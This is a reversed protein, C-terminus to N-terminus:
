KEKPVTSKLHTREFYIAIPFGFFWTVMSVLPNFFSIPISILFIVPSILLRLTLSRIFKPHLTQDVLRYGKSAHIWLLCMSIGTAALLVAYVIVASQNAPYKGILDNPFPVLVIFMLFLLNLSILGRDYRQILDLTRHYSIWYNGIIFFSLIFSIFKPLLGFIENNLQSAILNEPLQIVRIDIALLTIAFAFIADSFLTLREISLGHPTQQESRKILKNMAMTNKM